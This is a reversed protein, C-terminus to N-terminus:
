NAARILRTPSDRKPNASGMAVSAASLLAEACRRRRELGLERLQEVQMQPASTKLMEAMNQHLAGIDNLPFYATVWEEIERNVPIDSVITRVGLSIADYIALGGPTGEFATPQIVATANKMLAIQDLKPIFGLIRIRKELQNDAVFKSLRPFYNPYETSRPEAPASLNCRPIKRRSSPLPPLHSMM